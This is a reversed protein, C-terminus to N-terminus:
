TALPRRIQESLMKLLQLVPPACTSPYIELNLERQPQALPSFLMQLFPQALVILSPPPNVVQTVFSPQPHWVLPAGQWVLQGGLWYDMKLVQHLAVDALLQYYDM